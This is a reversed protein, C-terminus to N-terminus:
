PALRLVRTEGKKLALELRPGAGLVRGDMEDTVPGTSGTDVALTGDAAAHIALFPGNAYVNADTETYLHIGALRAAYRHLAPPIETTGVFLVPGGSGNRLVVAPEGGAFQALVTDGPGPVPSLLPQVPKAPAFEAPLGAALGADTAKVRAPTVDPLRKVDFGTLDTVTETGVRGNDLNIYGPAWCWIVSARSALDKLAQREAGTLAWAALFVYQRASVRGAAVDDLLYQGFPTGMRHLNARGTYILPRTTAASAGAAAVYRMSREDLVAAVAPKFPVPNALLTEEMAKFRGMEEWLKADNFWGTAGLDMWWTAFNRCGEQAMCYRIARRLAEAADARYQVSAVSPANTVEGGEYRMVDDPHARAWWAPPHMGIRPLLLANPNAALAERCARDLHFFNPEKGPEAWGASAGFSVLDVGQAAALAVQAGFPSPLGGQMRFDDGQHHFTPRFPREADARVRISVQYRHDKVLTLEPRFLHFGQTKPEATLKVHLVHGAGGDPAPEVTMSVPPNDRFGECWFKWEKDFADQGGEFDCAVLAPGSDVDKVHVDDFWINGSDEGFRLHMAVCNDDEPATFQFEVTRWDTGIHTAGGGGAAGWFIRARVPAGDQTLQPVGNRSVVRFAHSKGSAAQAEDAGAPVVCAVWGLVGTAASIGLWSCWPKM